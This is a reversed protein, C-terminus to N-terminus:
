VSKPFGSQGGWGAIPDPTADTKFFGDFLFFDSSPFSFSFTSIIYIRIRKVIFPAYKM